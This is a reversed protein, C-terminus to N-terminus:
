AFRADLCTRGFSFGRAGGFSADIPIRLGRVFGGPVPGDMLAVTRVVTSGGQGASFRIPALALRSNGARYPAIRAEGSMPAGSRPQSLSIEASPLGGGAMAINSDIRMRGSPWYYNIGDRGAVQVRAGGPGRAEASEVRVGGGGPFNVLR